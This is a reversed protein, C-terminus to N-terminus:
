EYKNSKIRNQSIELPQINKYNFCKYQEELIELNFSDCPKTHDLEWYSGYNSWNMDETFQQELYLKFEEINCGLMELTKGKKFGKRVANKLRNRLTIKLTFIPDKGYKEQYEKKRYEKRTQIGKITQRYKKNYCNQKEPNSLQYKKIYEKKKERNNLISYYKSQYKKDSKRKSEKFKEKKCLKCYSQLGDIRSSCKHFESYQKEEKCNPCQKKM